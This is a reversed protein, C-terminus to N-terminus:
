TPSCRSGTRTSRARSTIWAAKVQGPDSGGSLNVLMQLNLADMEKITQELNLETVGHHSHIDIVPYKARPVLHEDVVLTSRPRYDLISPATFEPFMCSGPRQLTTGAPCAGDVPPVIRSCQEPSIMGTGPPCKGDVPTIVAGRGRGGGRGQGPAGGRGQGAVQPGFWVALAVACGALGLLRTVRSM